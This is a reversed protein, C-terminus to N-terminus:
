TYHTKVEVFKLIVHKRRLMREKEITLAVEAIERQTFHTHPMQCTKNERQTFHMHSM